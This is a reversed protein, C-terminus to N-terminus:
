RRRRSGSTASRLPAIRGGERSRAEPARRLRGARPAPTTPHHHPLLAKRADPCGTDLWHATSTYGDQLLAAAHSFDAPSVKLPCLPPVVRLDVSDHLREADLALRHEVLMSLGQLAMGLATTPPAALACPYGAPLVWVTTAGLAVAYSIPTNNVVGGDMFWRGGIEVPPLVGPIAASALVADVAPGTSLLVDEGSQVDVAVVHLPVTAEELRDFVIHRELLSRLSAGSVLSRSRGAAALVSHVPNIPFVDHRRLRMWIEALEDLGDLTPCGALWAANIAGVSTGVLLDVKIGAEVLARLMGVQIAGLSAGGSLVVVSVEGTNGVVSDVM